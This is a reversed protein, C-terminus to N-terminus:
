AASEALTLNIQISEYPVWVQGDDNREILDLGELLAIDGHVNAYHRDAAKALAYVSAPGIKRLTNLLDVRTPTLDAFLLRATEYHLRFENNKASKASRLQSRATRIATGKPAIDIIAKMENGGM